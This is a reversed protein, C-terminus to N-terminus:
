KTRCRSYNIRAEDLAREILDEITGDQLEDALALADELIQHTRRTETGLRVNREGIRRVLIMVSTWRSVLRHIM